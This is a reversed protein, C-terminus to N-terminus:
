EFDAENTYNKFLNIGLICEFYPSVEDDSPYGSTKYKTYLFGGQLQSYWRKGFYVKAGTLIMGKYITSKLLGSRGAASGYLGEDTGLSGYLSGIWYWNYFIKSMPMIERILGVSNVKYGPALRLLTGKYHIDVGPIPTYSVGGIGTYIGINFPRKDPTKIQSYSFTSFFILTFLLLIRQTM